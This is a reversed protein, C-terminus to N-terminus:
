KQLGAKRAGNEGLLDEYFAYFNSSRRHGRKKGEFEGKAKVLPRLDDEEDENEDSSLDDELDPVRPLPKEMVWSGHWSGHERDIRAYEDRIDRSQWRNFPSIEQDNVLKENSLNATMPRFIPTKDGLQIM